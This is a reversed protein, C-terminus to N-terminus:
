QTPGGGVRKHLYQAINELTQIQDFDVSPIEVDYAERIEILLELYSLSDLSLQDSLRRGPDLKSLNVGPLLQGLIKLLGEQFHQNNITVDGDWM